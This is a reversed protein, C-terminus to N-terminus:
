AFLPTIAAIFLAAFLFYLTTLRPAHCCPCPPRRLPSAFYHRAILLIIFAYLLISLFSAYDHRSLQFCTSFSIFATVFSIHCHLLSLRLSLQRIHRFYRLSILCTTSSIFFFLSLFYDDFPCYYESFFFFFAYRRPPRAHRPLYREDYIPRQHRTFSLMFLDSSSTAREQTVVTIIANRARLRTGAHAAYRCQPRAAVHRLMHSGRCEATKRIDARRCRRTGQRARPSLRCRAAHQTATHVQWV